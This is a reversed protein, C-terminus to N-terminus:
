MAGKAPDPMIMEIGTNMTQSLVVEAEKIIEDVTNFRSYVKM